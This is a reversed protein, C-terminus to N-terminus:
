SATDCPASRNGNARELSKAGWVLMEKHGCSGQAAGTRLLVVLGAREVTEDQAQQPLVLPVDLPHSFPHGASVYM